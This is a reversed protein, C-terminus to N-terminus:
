LYDELLTLCWGLDTKLRYLQLTWSRMFITRIDSFISLKILIRVIRLESM